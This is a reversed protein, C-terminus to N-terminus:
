IVGCFVSNAVGILVLAGVTVLFAYHVANLLLTSLLLHCRFCLRDVSYCVFPTLM